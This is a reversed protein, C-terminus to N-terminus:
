HRRERIRKGGFMMKREVLGRSTWGYERSGNVFGDSVGRMGEAGERDRETSRNILGRGVNWGGGCQGSGYRTSFGRMVTAMGTHGRETDQWGM